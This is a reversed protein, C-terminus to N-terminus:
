SFKPCDDIREEGFTCHTVTSPPAFDEASITYAETLAPFFTEHIILSVPVPGANKTEGLPLPGYLFAKSSPDILTAEVNDGENRAGSLQHVLNKCSVLKPLFITLPIQVPAFM